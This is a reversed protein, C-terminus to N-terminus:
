LGEQEKWEDYNLAEHELKELLPKIREIIHEMDEVWIVIECDKKKGKGTEWRRQAKGADMSIEDRADKINGIALRVDDLM